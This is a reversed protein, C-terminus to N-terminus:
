VGVSVQEFEDKVLLRRFIAAPRKVVSFPNGNDMYRGKNPAKNSANNRSLMSM